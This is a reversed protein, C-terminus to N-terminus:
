RRKIRGLKTQRGSVLCGRKFRALAQRGAAEISPAESVGLAKAAELHAVGKTYWSLARDCNGQKAHFLSEEFSVDASRLSQNAETAGYARRKRRRPM